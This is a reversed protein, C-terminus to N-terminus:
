LYKLYNEIAAASKRKKVIDVSNKNNINEGRM